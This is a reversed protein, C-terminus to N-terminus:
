MEFQMSIWRQESTTIFSFASHNFQTRNTILFYIRMGRKRNSRAGCRWSYCACTSSQSSRRGRHLLFITFTVLGKNLIIVRRQSTGCILQKRPHPTFPSSSHADVKRGCHTGYPAAARAANKNSTLKNRHLRQMIIVEGYTLRTKM